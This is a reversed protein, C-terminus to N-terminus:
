KEARKYAAKIRNIGHIRKIIKAVSKATYQEWPKDTAVANRLQTAHFKIDCKFNGPKSNPVLHKFIRLAVKKDTFIYDFPPCADVVNKVSSYWDDGTEVDIVKIRKLPLKREKLFARMMLVREKGSFPNRKEDHLQSSGIVIVLKDVKKLIAEVMNIHTHHPPNFRGWFVGVVQKKKKNM